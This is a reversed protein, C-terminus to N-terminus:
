QTQVTTSFHPENRHSVITIFIIIIFDSFITCGPSGRSGGLMLGVRPPIRAVHRAGILKISLDALQKLTIRDPAASMLVHRITTSKPALNLAGLTKEQKSNALDSENM